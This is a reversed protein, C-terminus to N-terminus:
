PVGGPGVGWVPRQKWSIPGKGVQVTAEVSQTADGVTAITLISYLKSRDLNTPKLKAAECPKAEEWGAVDESARPLPPLSETDECGLARLVEPRATRLNIKGDGLKRPFATVFPRLEAVVADTFGRITRVEDFNQLEGPRPECPFPLACDSGLNRVSDADAELRAQVAELLGTDIDLDAFLNQLPEPTDLADNLNLRASEDRIAIQMLHGQATPLTLPAADILADIFTQIQENSKAEVLAEEAGIQASRALLQAAMANGANRTLHSHVFTADTMEVVILTLLAVSLLASLLALGQENRLTKM